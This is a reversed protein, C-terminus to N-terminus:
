CDARATGPDNQQDHFHLQRDREAPVEFPRKQHGARSQQISGHREGEPGTSFVIFLSHWNISSNYQVICYNDFPHFPDKLESYEAVFFEFLMCLDFHLCVQLRKMEAKAEDKEKRADLNETHM